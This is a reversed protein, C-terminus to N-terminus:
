YPRCQLDPTRKPRESMILLAFNQLPPSSFDLLKTEVNARRCSEEIRAWCLRLHPAVHSTVHILILTLPTPCMGYRRGDSLQSMLALLFDTIPHRFDVGSTHVDLPRREAVGDHM